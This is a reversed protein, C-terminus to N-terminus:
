LQFPTSFRLDTHINGQAPTFLPGIKPELPWLDPPRGCLIDASPRRLKRVAM